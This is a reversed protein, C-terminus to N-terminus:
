VNYIRRKIIYDYVKKPVLSSFDEGDKIKQRIESSSIKLVPSTLLKFKNMDLGDLRSAFSLIEAKEKENERASTCLTVLSLIEKYKYWKDFHLMQDAGIILYFEANKYIKKLESLTLYTYSKGTLKFEIDSIEFKDFSSIALSLMNIRDEKPAFDDDSKHPPSATPIFLIKDLELENLYHLALNIHGNHVPNFAGGFVGIKQKDAMINLDTTNLTLTKLKKKEAIREENAERYLVIIGGIVQIVEAGLPESLKQALEKPSEPASELHVRIKILERNDLTDDIQTLLNESIGEKGIQIIPELPNAKARLAAREKSTM